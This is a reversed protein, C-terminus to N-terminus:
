LKMLALIEQCLFSTLDSLSYYTKNTKTVDESMKALKEFHHCFKKSFITNSNERPRKIPISQPLDLFPSFDDGPCNVFHLLCWFYCDWTKFIGWLWKRIQANSFNLSFTRRSGELEQTREYHHDLANKSGDQLRSVTSWLNRTM